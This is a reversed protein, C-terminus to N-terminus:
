IIGSLENKYDIRLGKFPWGLWHCAHVVNVGDIIRLDKDLVVIPIMGPGGTIFLLLFKMVRNYELGISHRGADLEYITYPHPPLEDGNFMRKEIVKYNRQMMSRIEKRNYPNESVSKDSIRVAFNELLEIHQDQGQTIKSNFPKGLAQAQDNAIGQAAEFWDILINKTENKM